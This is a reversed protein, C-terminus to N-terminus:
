KTGNFDSERKMLAEEYAQKEREYQQNMNKRVLGLLEGLIPEMVCFPLGSNNVLSEAGEIFEQRKIMLTKEM